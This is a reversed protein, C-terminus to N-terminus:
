ELRNVILISSGAVTVSGDDICRIEINGKGPNYEFGPTKSLM